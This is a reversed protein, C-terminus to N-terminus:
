RSLAENLEPSEWRDHLAIPHPSPFRGDSTWLFCGGFM